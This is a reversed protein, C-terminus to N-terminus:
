DPTRMANRWEKWASTQRIAQPSVSLLKGWENSDWGVFRRDLEAIERMRSDTNKSSDKAVQSIKAANDDLMLSEVRGIADGDPAEKDADVTVPAPQLADLLLLLTARARLRINLLGEPVRGTLRWQEAAEHWALLPQADVGPCFENLWSAQPSTDVHTHRPKSHEREPNRRQWDMEDGYKLLLGLQSKALTVQTRRWYEQENM